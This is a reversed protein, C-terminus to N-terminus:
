IKESWFTTCFHHMCGEFISINEKGSSKAYIMRIDDSEIRFYRSFKKQQNPEVFYLNFFCISSASLAPYDDRGKKTLKEEPEAPNRRLYPSNGTRFTTM